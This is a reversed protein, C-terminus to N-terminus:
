KVLSYTYKIESHRIQEYLDEDEISFACIDCFRQGKSEIFYNHLDEILTLNDLDLSLMYSGFNDYLLAKRYGVNSLVSFISIGDDNQISWHLPEYEFFIIPKAQEIFNIAGRIILGDFGDTDIKIMKALSFEPREVLIEQLTKIQVVRDNKKSDLLTQLIDITNNNNKEATVIYATGKHKMIESNSLQNIEGIYAKELYVEPFQYANTELISFFDDDGEICLIPFSTLQRMMAVSDGINAGIDILKLDNYKDKVYKTIQVLNDSYHPIEKLYLPLDHSLPLFLEFDGIHFRVLPDKFKVILDRLKWLIRFQLRSLRGNSPVHILKDFLYQYVNMM